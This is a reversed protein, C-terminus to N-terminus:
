NGKPSEPNEAVTAVAHRGRQRRKLERRALVIFAIAEFVFIVAVGGFFALHADDQVHTPSRLGFILWGIPVVNLLIFFVRMLTWSRAQVQYTILGVIAGILAVWFEIYEGDLITM